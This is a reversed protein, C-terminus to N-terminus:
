STTTVSPKPWCSADAGAVSATLMRGVAAPEPAAVTQAPSGAGRVPEPPTDHEQVGALPRSSADLQAGTAVGVIVVTYVSVTVAPLPHVEDFLGVTVTVTLGTGSRGTIEAGAETGTPAEPADALTVFWGPEVHFQVREPPVIVAPCVDRCITKSAPDGPVVIIQVTTSVLAPQEDGVAVFFM